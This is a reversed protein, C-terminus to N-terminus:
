AEGLLRERAANIWAPTRPFEDYRQVEALMPDDARIGVTKLLAMDQLSEAFVEWRISDVPGDPGPYVVFPDGYPWDPWMNVDGERYPDVTTQTWPHNW